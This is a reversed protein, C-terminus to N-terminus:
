FHSHIAEAHFLKGEIVLLNIEGPLLHYSEGAEMKLLDLHANMGRAPKMTVRGHDSFDFHIEAKTPFLEALKEPSLLHRLADRGLVANNAHLTTMVDHGAEKGILRVRLAM